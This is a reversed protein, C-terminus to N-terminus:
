AITKAMRITEASYKKKLEAPKVGNRIDKVAAVLTKQGEKIKTESFSELIQGGMKSMEKRANKQSSLLYDMIKMIHNVLEGYM